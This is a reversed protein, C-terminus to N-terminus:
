GASIECKKMSTILRIDENLEVTNVFVYVNYKRNKKNFTVKHLDHGRKLLEEAVWKTFIDKYKNM